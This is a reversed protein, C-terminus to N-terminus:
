ALSNIRQALAEVGKLLRIPLAGHVFNYLASDNRGVRSHPSQNAENDDRHEQQLRLFPSESLTRGIGGCERTLCYSAMVMPQGAWGRGRSPVGVVWVLTEAPWSSPNLTTTQTLGGRLAALRPLLTQDKQKASRSSMASPPELTAKQSMQSGQCFSDRPILPLM